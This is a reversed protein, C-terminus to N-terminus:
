SISFGGMVLFPIEAAFEVTYDVVAAINVGIL